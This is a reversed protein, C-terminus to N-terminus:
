ETERERVTYVLGNQGIVDYKKHFEVMSVGEDVMVDYQKNSDKIPMLCGTTILLVGIVLGIVTDSDTMQLILFIVGIAVVWWGTWYKSSIETLVIVGDM